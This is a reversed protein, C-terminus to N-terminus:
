IRNICKDCLQFLKYFQSSREAIDIATDGLMNKISTDIKPDMLLLQLIHPTNAQKAALHLPTLGGHTSANIHAGHRLLLEASDTKNWYCASHLPTWGDETLANMDADSDLLLKMINTHGEYAARHLPSYGDSDKCNVLHNSSKIMSKVLDEDGSECLWLMQKVPDNRREEETAVNVDEEDAEWNSIFMGPNMKKEDMIRSKLNEMMEVDENQLGENNEDLDEM